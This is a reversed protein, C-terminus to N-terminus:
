VDRAARTCDSRIQPTLPVVLPSERYRWIPATVGSKLPLRCETKDKMGNGEPATVGFQPTLPVFRFTEVLALSSGVPPM